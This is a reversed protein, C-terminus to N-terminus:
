YVIHPHLDDNFCKYDPLPSSSLQSFPFQTEDFIVHRPIIIKRHSLDFCKYGRHNLPYGLFVCPTSRTQLKNITTSPFLPYCLGGFVRLHTWSPDRHYLLQNPSHNSLNNRPLITLMYTAMQLAHYWFSPPVSSHALLTHIMNNITRIKREAKGNSIFHSSMLFSFILGDDVCYKHFMTNDYERGNDCQFCKITQSFQTHIKNSFSTFKEFVQSKNSMPFIWLFDSYDDLFLVYYRHGSSSLVPSTWLDSHLIYFPLKVHKGFVYSDCVHKSNLHESSLFKNKHLSQLISFSPHGLRSHWLSSTLGTFNSPSTVHYLDDVSDCRMLPIGTQFDTVSFGFPDFSVSVNNNTTLQRVFILNKIIHPTHLIHTLNLPKHKHSIPLTTHGSGQSPIGQGSGVNLKHNLHSLNSYSTLNGGSTTTHSSARTNMNWTNEPPSLYM